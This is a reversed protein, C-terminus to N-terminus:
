WKMFDFHGLISNIINEEQTVVEDVRRQNTGKRTGFSQSKQVNRLSCKHYIWYKELSRIDTKDLLSTKHCLYKETM